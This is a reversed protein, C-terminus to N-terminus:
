SHRSKIQNHVAHQSSFMMTISYIPFHSYNPIRHIQLLRSKEHENVESANLLQHKVTFPGRVYLRDPSIM